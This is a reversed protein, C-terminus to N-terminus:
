SVSPSQPFFKRLHDSVQEFPKAGILPKGIDKGDRFFVTLPISGIHPYAKKAKSHRGKDLDIQGFKIDSFEKALQEVIPEYRQCPGCWGPCGLVLVARPSAIFEDWHADDVDIVLSEKHDTETVSMVPRTKSRFRDLVRGFVGREPM